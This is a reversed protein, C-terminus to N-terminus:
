MVGAKGLRWRRLADLILLPQHPARQDCQRSTDPDDFRTLIAEPTMFATTKVASQKM